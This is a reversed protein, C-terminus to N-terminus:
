VGPLLPRPAVGPPDPQPNFGRAQGCVVIILGQQTLDPLKVGFGATDAQDEIARNDHATNAKM